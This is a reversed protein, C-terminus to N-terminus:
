FKEPRIVSVFLYGILLVGVVGVVIDLM